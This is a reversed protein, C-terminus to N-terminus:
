GGEHNYPASCCDYEHSKSIIKLNKPSRSISFNNEDRATVRSKNKSVKYVIGRSSKYKGKTEFEVLDGFYIQTGDCDYAGTSRPNAKKFKESLEREQKLLFKLTEDRERIAFRLNKLQELGERYDIKNM